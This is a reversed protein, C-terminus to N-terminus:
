VQDIPHKSNGFVAASLPATRIFLRERAGALKLAVDLVFGGDRDVRSAHRDQVSKAEFRVGAHVFYANGFTGGFQLTKRQDSYVVVALRRDRCFSQLRELM